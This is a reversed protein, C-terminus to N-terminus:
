GNSTERDIITSTISDFRPDHLYIHEKFTISIFRTENISQIFRMEDIMNKLVQNTVMYM